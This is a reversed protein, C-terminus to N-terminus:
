KLIRKAIRYVEDDNRKGILLITTIKKESNHKYILRYEGIDVRMYPHYGILPRSDQPHPTHQLSLISDKIQRKHKPPLSEIFKKARPKIDLELLM